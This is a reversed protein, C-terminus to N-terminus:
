NKKPIKTLYVNFSEEWTAEDCALGYWEQFRGEKGLEPLVTKLTTLFHNKSTTQPHGAKRPCHIWAGMLKKPISHDLAHVIKGIYMWTCRIIFFGIEPTNEFRSRVEENSIKQERMQEWKINLIYRIVSHHFIVLKNQNTNNLNWL